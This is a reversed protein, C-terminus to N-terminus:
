KGSITIGEVAIWPLVRQGDQVRQRSIGRLKQVMQALNGSIMTESVAQTVRGKEILFSNKAIGSFDGNSAPSGGSFRSVLLGKDIGSIIDELSDEGPAVILSFSGSPAPQHGTKNAVFSSLMFQKLVGDKILDYDESLRGDDLYNEGCVVAPDHPAIRLSLRPDAVQQNLKDKWLSTGDLIVGDGVFNGALDELISAACGPTFVVCGEYKGEPAVTDIQRQIDSLTQRLDAQDIFPSDLNDTAFGTYNFSSTKDGEHASIMIFVGYDGAETQYSAGLSNQYYSEVRDHSVIMQEVMVKPYDRAISDLLEQARAFLRDQDAQPAGQTFSRQAGEYLQWAPDASAGQASLLCDRAAKTIAAESLDNGAVKGRKHDKILTLDLGKDFTTRLLSFRGSDATFERKESVRARASYLDGGAKKLENLAFAAAEYATM